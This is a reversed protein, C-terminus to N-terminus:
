VLRALALSAILLLVQGDTLPKGIFWLVVCLILVILAILWGFGFRPGFYEQINM